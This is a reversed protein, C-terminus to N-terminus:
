IGWTGWDPPERDLLARIAAMAKGLPLEAKTVRPDDDYATPGLNIIGVGFSHENGLVVEPLGAAPYVECSSGLVLLYDAQRAWERARAMQEPPLTEGFLVVGPKIVAQCRDCRPVALARLKAEVESIEYSTDCELCIGVALTGHIEALGRGLASRRHLGDVNQTIVGKIVGQEYLREVVLHAVNPEADHLRSLREAYFRWFEDPAQQFMEINALEEFRKNKWLGNEGRYDPLGSETSIGAGTFVVAFEAAALDDAIQAISSRDRRSASDADVDTDRARTM